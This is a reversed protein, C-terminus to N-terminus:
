GFYQDSIDDYAKWVAENEEQLQLIRVNLHWIMEVADNYLFVLHEKTMGAAEDDTIQHYDFNRKDTM